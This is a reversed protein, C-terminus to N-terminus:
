KGTGPTAGLILRVWEGYEERLGRDNVVTERMRQELSDGPIEILREMLETVAQDRRKSNIGKLGIAQAFTRVEGITSLLERERLKLWVDDLLDAREADEGRVQALAERVQSAPNRRKARHRAPKKRTRSVSAIELLLTRLQERRREDELWAILSEWDSAKYKAALQALDNLLKANLDTM